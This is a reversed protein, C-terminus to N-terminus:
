RCVLLLASKESVLLGGGSGIGHRWFPGALSCGPFLLTSHVWGYCSDLSTHSGTDPLYFGDAETAASDFGRGSCFRSGFSRYSDFFPTGYASLCYEGSAGGSVLRHLFEEGGGIEDPLKRLLLPHVYQSIHPRYQSFPCSYVHQNSDDMTKGSVLSSNLWVAWYFTPATDFYGAM